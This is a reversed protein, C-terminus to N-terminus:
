AGGNTHSSLTAAAELLLWAGVQVSLDRSTEDPAPKSWESPFLPGGLAETANERCARASDLVLDRAVDSEPAPLRQAALALYRALIGAFLGGDGGGQGRLIGDPACHEAVARVTRAASDLESLELATGLFVGQCYTYIAKVLEGDDVRLGDWVLGTDPDVLTSEMWSLLERARSTEGARAHLIAAPGNSPANKFRDGKRWWIGGGGEPTWAGRLEDLIVSVDRGARQMALGLWAMDDYYDNTWKGFNRLRVSSLFRDITAQRAPTPDRLQADLLCDLLHAQWWYNWHWHVRQGPTPPWGSRGLITGPLLWVRRLHRTVIAREAEAAWERFM